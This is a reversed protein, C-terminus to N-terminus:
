ERSGRRVESLRYAAAITCTIDNLKHAEALLGIRVILQQDPDIRCIPRAPGSKLRDAGAVAAPYNDYGSFHPVGGFFAWARELDEVVDELTQRFLPWLFMHRSYGCVLLLIWVYRQKGSDSDPIRGLRAFDMEIVQGPETEALRMTSAPVSGRALGRAAVFRQLTSYSVRLGRDELLERIRTLQLRDRSLWTGIREAHPELSQMAPAAANKPGPLNLAALAVLQDRDPGPGDPTLGLDRAANVYRRVTM